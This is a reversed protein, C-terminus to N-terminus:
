VKFGDMKKTNFQRGLIKAIQFCNRCNDNTALSAQFGNCSAALLPMSRTHSTMVPNIYLVM